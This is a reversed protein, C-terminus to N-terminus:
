HHTYAPVRRQLQNLTDVSVYNAYHEDKCEGQKYELGVLASLEGLREFCPEQFPFLLVAGHERGHHILKLRAHGHHLLLALVCFRRKAQEQLLGADPGIGNDPVALVRTSPLATAVCFCCLRRNMSGVSGRWRSGALLMLMLLSADLVPPALHAHSSRNAKGDPGAQEGGKTRQLASHAHRARAVQRATMIKPNVHGLVCDGEVSVGKMYKVYVVVMQRCGTQMTLRLYVMPSKRQFHDQTSVVYVLPILEAVHAVAVAAAAAMLMM